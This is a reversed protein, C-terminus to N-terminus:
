LNINLYAFMDLGELSQQIQVYDMGLYYSIYEAIELRCEDQFEELLDDRFEIPTFAFEDMLNATYPECLETLTARHEFIFDNLDLM